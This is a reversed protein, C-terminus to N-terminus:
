SDGLQEDTPNNRSYGDRERAADICRDSCYPQGQGWYQQDAIYLPKRPLPGDCYGCVPADKKPHRERWAQWPVGIFIALLIAGVLALFFLDLANTRDLYGQWDATM